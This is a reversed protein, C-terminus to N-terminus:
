EMTAVYNIRFWRNAVISISDFGLRLRILRGNSSNAAAILNNLYMQAMGCVNSITLHAHFRGCVIHGDNMRGYQVVVVLMLLLLLLLDMLWLNMRWRWGYLLRLLQSIRMLLLLLFLLRMKSSICSAATVTVNNDTITWRYNCVIWMKCM